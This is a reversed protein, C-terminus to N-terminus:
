IQRYGDEFTSHRMHGSYGFLKLLLINIAGAIRSENLVAAKQEDESIEARAKSHVLPHRARKWTKFINELDDQWKLGFHNVVTQFMQEMSFLQASQVVNHLRRYGEGKEAIQQNIQDAIETKAEEFLKLDNNDTKEKLNLERFLLRVLNEFLTCLAITTIEYHVSEDAERFLFLIISVEKSFTSDKEFFTTAKRIVDQFDWKLSGTRADFALRDTFPAHYTKTLKDASTIRDTIKQGARWYQRRYPWAHIGNAFALANMFADFKIWDEREGSSHYNKKSHLAVQLDSDTGEKTLVFEYNDTEGKVENGWTTSLLPYEFLTAYFSVDDPSEEKSSTQVSEIQPNNQGQQKLFENRANRPMADWGAPILDIPHLKFTCRTIGSPWSLQRKGTPGVHDCKFQLQDEILGTLKWSDRKTYIGTHFEPLTEGLSITVDLEIRERSIRLMGKGHLEQSGTNIVIEDVRLKESGGRVIKVFDDATM